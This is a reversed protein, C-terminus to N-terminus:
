NADTIKGKGDCAECRVPYIKRGPQAPQKVAPFGTGNCAVCMHEKIKPTMNFREALRHSREVAVACASGRWGGGWFFRGWCPPASLGDKSLQALALFGEGAGAKRERNIPRSPWKMQCGYSSLCHVPISSGLRFELERCNCRVRRM